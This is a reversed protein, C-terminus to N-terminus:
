PTGGGASDSAAALKATALQSNHRGYFFYFFLGIVLWAFFRLWNEFNRGRAFDDAKLILIRHRDQRAANAM